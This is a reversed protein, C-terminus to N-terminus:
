SRSGRRLLARRIMSDDGFYIGLQGNDAIILYDGIECYVPEDGNPWSEAGAFGDWRTKDDKFCKIERTTM